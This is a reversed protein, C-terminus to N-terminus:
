QIKQALDRVKKYLVDREERLTKLQGMDADRGRRLRVLEAELNRIAKDTEDRSRTVRKIADETACLDDAAQSHEEILKEFEGRVSIRTNRVFYLTGEKDKLMVNNPDGKCSPYQGGFDVITFKTGNNCCATCNTQLEGNRYAVMNGSGLYIATMGTRLKFGTSDNM